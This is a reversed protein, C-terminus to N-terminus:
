PASEAPPRMATWARCRSTWSSSTTNAQPRRGDKGRGRDRGRGRGGFIGKGGFHDGRDGPEARQGGGPPDKQGSGRRPPNRRKRTRKSTDWFPTRPESLFLPKSCFATVGALRAEEEIETWDYATLIIIPKGEGIIARIRRVTEIGNLDPMIWDIIYVSFEDDNELALRARLVAEKGSTTWEARMGIKGLMRTVSACTSFDDDAVLAHLGALKPIHANRLPGSGIPFQLCVTFESGKGM